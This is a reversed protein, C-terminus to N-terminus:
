RYLAKISGWTASQVPLPGSVIWLKIAVRSIGGFNDRVDVTFTHTGSFFSRPASCTESGDFPTWDVPWQSPDNVDVIDFGWRYDTITGGYGSADATWCYSVPTGQVVYIETTPEGLGFSEISTIGTGTVVLHPGIPLASSGHETASHAPAAATLAAVVALILLHRM